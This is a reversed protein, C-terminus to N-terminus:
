FYQSVKHQLEDTVDRSPTGCREHSYSKSTPPSDSLKIKSFCNSHIRHVNVVFCGITEVVDQPTYHPENFHAFRVISNQQHVSFM